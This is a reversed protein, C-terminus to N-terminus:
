SEDADSARTIRDLKSKDSGSKSTLVWVDPIEKSLDTPLQRAVFGYSMGNRNDLYKKGILKYFKNRFNLEAVLRKKPYM